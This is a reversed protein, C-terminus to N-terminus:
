IRKKRRPQGFQFRNRQNRRSWQIASNELVFQTWHHRLLPLLSFLTRVVAPPLHRDGDQPRTWLRPVLATHFWDEDELRLLIRQTSSACTRTKASYDGIAVLIM